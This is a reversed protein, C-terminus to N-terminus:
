ESGFDIQMTTLDEPELLILDECDPAEITVPFELPEVVVSSDTLHVNLKAIWTDIMQHSKPTM